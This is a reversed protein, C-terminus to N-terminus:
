EFISKDFIDDDSNCNLYEIIHRVDDETSESDSFKDTNNNSNSNNFRSMLYKETLLIGSMDKLTKTQKNYITKSYTNTNNNQKNYITKSYTNTNTNNTFISKSTNYWVNNPNMNLKNTINSTNSTNNTNTINAQITYPVLSRATLHISECNVRKCRGYYLDDYCIRFKTSIAGNRCNYGGPCNQKICSVCIKTLQLMTDFLKKDSVLNLKSLDNHNKLITYVKHRMPDIKQENLTHAYMCKQGYTCMKNNTINFCLIKKKSASMKDNKDINEVNNEDSM